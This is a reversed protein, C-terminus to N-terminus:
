SPLDFMLVPAATPRHAGAAPEVTVGLRDGAALGTVVVPATMGHRPAPLM